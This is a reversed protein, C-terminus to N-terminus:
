QEPNHQIDLSSATGPNEANMIFRKKKSKSKITLRGKFKQLVGSEPISGVVNAQDSSDDKSVFEMLKNAEDFCVGEVKFEKDGLKLTGNAKAALTAGALRCAIVTDEPKDGVGEVNALLSTAQRIATDEAQEQLLQLAEGELRLPISGSGGDRLPISGAGGGALGTSSLCIAIAALWIQASFKM